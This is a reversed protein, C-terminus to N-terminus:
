AFNAVPTHLQSATEWTNQLDNHSTINFSDQGRACRMLCKILWETQKKTLAAELALEAVEFDTRSVFPWWPQPNIINPEPIDDHSRYDEFRDM